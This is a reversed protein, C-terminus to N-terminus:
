SKKKGLIHVWNILDKLEFQTFKGSKLKRSLTPQSTGYAEALKRLSVNKNDSYQALALKLDNTTLKSPKPEPTVEIIKERRYEKGENILCKPHKFVIVVDLWSYFWGRPKKLAEDLLWQPANKFEWQYPDDIKKIEILASMVVRYLDKKLDRLKKSDTESHIADLKTKLGVQEIITKLKFDGDQNQELKFSLWHLLASILGSTNFAKKHVYGFQKFNDEDFYKFWEGVKFSIHLDKIVGGFLPHNEKTGDKPFYKISSFEILPTEEIGFAQKGKGTPMIRSSYVRIGKLLECHHALLNLGEIKSLRKVENNVKILKNKEKLIELIEDGSLTITEGYIKPKNKYWYAILISFVQYTDEGYQAVLDAEIDQFLVDIDGNTFTKSCKSLKESIQFINLGKGIMLSFMTDMVLSSSNATLNSDQFLKSTIIPNPKLNLASILNEIYLNPIIDETLPYRTVFDFINKEDEIGLLYGRNKIEEYILNIKKYTKYSSTIDVSTKKPNNFAKERLLKFHKESYSIFDETEKSFTMVAKSNDEKSPEIASESTEMEEIQSKLTDLLGNLKRKNRAM